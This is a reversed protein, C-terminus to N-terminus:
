QILEQKGESILISDIDEKFEVYRSIVLHYDLRGKLIQNALYVAMANVSEKDENLSETTPSFLMFNIARQNLEIEADQAKNIAKIEANERELSINKQSLSLIAQGGNVPAKAKVTGDIGGTVRVYANDIFTPLKLEETINTEILQPTELLYYMEYDNDNMLKVAHQKIIHDNYGVPLESKPLYWKFESEHFVVFQVPNESNNSSKDTTLGKVFGKRQSHGLKGLLAHGPPNKFFLREHTTSPVGVFSGTLNRLNSQGVNKEVIYKGQESDWYLKDAYIGVKMLQCPLVLTVEREEYVKYPSYPLVVNGANVQVTAGNAFFGSPIKITFFKEREDFTITKATGAKSNSDWINERIVKGNSDFSWASNWMTGSYNDAVFTFTKNDNIPILQQYFGDYMSSQLNSVNGNPLQYKVYTSENLLNTTNYSKVKVSYQKRGLEDLIPSGDDDVYLEGLHQVNSLNEENQITNGWIEIERLYGEKTHNISINEGDVDTWVVEDNTLVFNEIKASSWTKETSITSDDFSNGVQSSTGDKGRPIGFDLVPNEKTGGIVVTAQQEPELTTVTGITLNPTMGDRGNKGPLGQEGRDGKEGKEGKDGKLTPYNLYAFQGQENRLYIAM